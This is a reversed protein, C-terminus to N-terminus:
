STVTLWLDGTTPPSGAHIQWCGPQDFVFGAGWEAGPRNWSSGTHPSPGWVPPVRTGDPAVSYFVTPVGSTMRFVIKTQKGVVGALTAETSAPQSAFIAWLQAGVSTGFVETQEIGIGAQNRPSAPSCGPAGLAGFGAPPLAAVSLLGRGVVLRRGVRAEPRYVAAALHPLRFVLTQRSRRPTVVGVRVPATGVNPVAGLAIGLPRGPVAGAIRVVVRDGPRVIGGAVSLSLGGTGATTGAALLAAVVLALLTRM